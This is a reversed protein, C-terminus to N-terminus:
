AYHDGQNYRWCLTPPRREYGLLAFPLKEGRILLAHGTDNRVHERESVKDDNPTSRVGYESWRPGSVLCLKEAGCVAQAAWLTRRDYEALGLIM